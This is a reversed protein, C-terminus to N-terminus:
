PVEVFLSGSESTVKYSGLDRIPAPFKALKGTTCDFEAKHWGCTITSGNLAGESLSAGSHTCTDGTAHYTGDINAVLIDTGNVTFKQMSGPAIDSESGILHRGM